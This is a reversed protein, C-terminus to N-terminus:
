RFSGYLKPLEFLVHRVFPHVIRPYHEQIGFLCTIFKAKSKERLLNLKGNVSTLLNASDEEFKLVLGVVESSSQYIERKEADMHRLVAQMFEQKNARSWPALGNALLIACVQIGPESVRPDKDDKRQFLLFSDSM